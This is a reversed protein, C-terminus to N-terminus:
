TRPESAIGVDLLPFSLLSGPTPVSLDQLCNIPLSAPPFTRPLNTCGASTYLSFDPGWAGWARGELPYRQSRRTGRQARSSNRTGSSRCRTYNRRIRSWNRILEMSSRKWRSCSFSRHSLILSGGTCGWAHLSLPFELPLRPLGGQLQSSLCSPPHISNKCMTEKGHYLPWM